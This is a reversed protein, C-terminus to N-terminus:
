EDGEDQKYLAAEAADRADSLRARLDMSKTAHDERMITALAQLARFNMANESAWMRPAEGSCLTNIKFIASRVSANGGDLNIRKVQKSREMVEDILEWTGPEIPLAKRKEAAEAERTNRRLEDQLNRLDATQRDLEEKARQVRAKQNEILLDLTENSNNM